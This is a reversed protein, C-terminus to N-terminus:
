CKKARGRTRTGSDAVEQYMAVHGSVRYGGGLIGVEVLTLGVISLFGGFLDMKKVLAMKQSMTSHRRAVPPLPPSYFTFTM